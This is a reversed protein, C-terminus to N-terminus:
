REAVENASPLFHVNLLVRYCMVKIPRWCLVHPPTPHPSHNWCIIVARLLLQPFTMNECAHTLFETWLPHLRGLPISPYGSGWASLGPLCHGGGPLCHGGLCVCRRPLSGRPLRGGSLSGVGRPSRRGGGVFM